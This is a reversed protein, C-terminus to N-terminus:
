NNKKTHRVTSNLYQQSLIGSIIVLLGLITTVHIAEKLIISLLLLSLFPTLYILNGLKAANPALQLAKLWIFFTIGMEFLGVYIVAIWPIQNLNLWFPDNLWAYTISLITGSIFGVFLKIVADVKMKASLLWYFAWIVTSGLALLVGTLNLAAWSTLNGGTAIIIAGFFSLLISLLSSLKLSHKLIPVSLLALMVPWLYNLSMAVQGPLLDYAKFLIVYYLFPNISGLFLLYVWQASTLKFLLKIKKSVFLIATITILSLSTSMWLLTLPTLQILALKFASAAGGWFLITFFTYVYAKNRSQM